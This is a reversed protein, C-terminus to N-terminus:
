LLSRGLAEAWGRGHSGLPLRSGAGLVGLASILPTQSWKLKATPDSAQAPEADRTEVLGPSLPSPTWLKLRGDSSLDSSVKSCKARGRAASCRVWGRSSQASQWSSLFSGCNQELSFLLYGWSSYSHGWISTRVDKGESLCHNALVESAPSEPRQVKLLIWGSFEAVAQLIGSYGTEKRVAAFYSVSPFLMKLAELGSVLLPRGALSLAPAPCSALALHSERLVHAPWLDLLDETSRMLGGDTAESGTQVLVHKVALNGKFHQTGIIGGHCQGQSGTGGAWHPKRPWRLARIEKISETRNVSNYTRSGQHGGGRRNGVCGRQKWGELGGRGAWCTEGSGRRSGWAAGETTVSSRPAWSEAWEEAAKEPVRPEAWAKCM